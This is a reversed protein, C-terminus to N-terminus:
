AGQLEKRVEQAKQFAARGQETRPFQALDKIRESLGPKSSVFTGIRYHREMMTSDTTLDSGASLYADLEGPDVQAMADQEAALKVLARNLPASRGMVLLAARDATSEALQVWAGLLKTMLLMPAGILKPVIGCTRFFEMMNLFRTHKARIHLVERALLAELEDAALADVAPQLVVIAPKKGGVAKLRPEDGEMVYVDPAPLGLLAAARAVSAFLEPHNSGSVRARLGERQIRRRVGGTAQRGVYMVALIPWLVFVGIIQPHEPLARWSVLALIIFVVVTAALAVLYYTREGPVVFDKVLLAPKKKKITVRRAM